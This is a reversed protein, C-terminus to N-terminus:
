QPCFSSQLGSSLVESLESFSSWLPTHRSVLTTWYIHNQHFPLEHLWFGKCFKRSTVFLQHLWSPIWHKELYTSIWLNLEYFWTRFIHIQLCTRGTKGSCLFEWKKEGAKVVNLLLQLDASAAACSQIRISTSLLHRHYTSTHLQLSYPIKSQTKRFSLCSKKGDSNKRGKKLNFLLSM